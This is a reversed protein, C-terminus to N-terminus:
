YIINKITIILKDKVNYKKTRENDIMKIIKNDIM